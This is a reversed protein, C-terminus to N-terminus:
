AGPPAPATAAVADKVAQPISDMHAKLDAKEQKDRKIKAKWSDYLDRSDVVNQQDMLYQRRRMSQVVEGTMPCTYNPFDSGGPVQVMPATLQRTMAQGCCAPTNDRQDVKSVYDRVTGCDDCKATYTPM